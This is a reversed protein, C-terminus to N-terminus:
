YNETTVLREGDIVLHLVSPDTHHILSMVKYAGVWGMGEDRALVYEGM